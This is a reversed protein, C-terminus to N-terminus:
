SINARLFLLHLTLLFLSILPSKLSSIIIFIGMAIIYGITPMNTGTTKWEGDSYIAGSMIGDPLYMIAIVASVIFVAIIAAPLYSRATKFSKGIFRKTRRVAKEAESPGAAAVGPMAAIREEGTRKQSKFYMTELFGTVLAIDRKLYEREELLTKKGSVDFAERGTTLFAFLTNEIFYFAMPVDLAKGLYFIGEIMQPTLVAMADLPNVAFVDFKNKFEALETEVSQWEGRWSKVKAGEFDRSVVQVSGRFPHAFDFRMARGRFVDEWREKYSIEGDSDQSKVIYKRLVGFDCQSFNLGKYNAVISDNGDIRDIEKFFDLLRTSDFGLNGHPEYHLDDFVKSLEAKVINEKFSSNYRKKVVKAYFFCAASCLSAVIFAAELSENVSFALAFSVPWLVIGLLRFLWAKIRQKEMSMAAEDDKSLAFSRKERYARRLVFFLWILGLLLVIVGVVPFVFQLFFMLFFFAIDM